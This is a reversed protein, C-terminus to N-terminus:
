KFAKTFFDALKGKEISGSSQDQGLYTAMDWTALKLVEAPSYGLQAFLELERHFTFSGGLDTGPILLIGLGLLALGSAIAPALWPRATGRPEPPPTEGSLPPPTTM